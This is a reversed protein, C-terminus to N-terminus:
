LTKDIRLEEFQIDKSYAISVHFEFISKEGELTLNEYFKLMSLRFFGYLFM